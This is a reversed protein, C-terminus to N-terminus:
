EYLALKPKVFSYSFDFTRSSIFSNKHHKTDKPLTSVRVHFTFLSCDFYRKLKMVSKWVPYYLADVENTCIPVCESYILTGFSSYVSVHSIFKWTDVM